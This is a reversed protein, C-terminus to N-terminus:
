TLQFSASLQRQGKGRIETCWLQAKVQKPWGRLPLVLLQAFM